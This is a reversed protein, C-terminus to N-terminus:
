RRLFRGEPRSHPGAGPRVMVHWSGQLRRRRMAFRHRVWTGWDNSNSYRTPHTSRNFGSAPRPLPTGPSRCACTRALIVMTCVHAHGHAHLHAYARAPIVMTYPHVRIHGHAYGYLRVRLLHRGGGLRLYTPNAHSPQRKTQHVTVCTWPIQQAPNTPSRRRQVSTEGSKSESEKSSASQITSGRFVYPSIAQRHPDALVYPSVAIGYPLRSMHPSAASDCPLGCFRIPFAVLCPFRRRRIPPRGVTHPVFIMHFGLISCHFIAQPSQVNEHIKAPPPPGAHPGGSRTPLRGWHCVQRSRRAKCMKAVAPLAAPSSPAAVQNAALQLPVPARPSHLPMPAACCGRRQLRGRVRGGGWQLSPWASGHRSPKINARPGVTPPPMANAVM